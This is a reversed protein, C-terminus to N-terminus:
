IRCATCMIATQGNFAVINSYIVAFGNLLDCHAIRGKKSKPQDTQITKWSSVSHTVSSFSLVFLVCLKHALGIRITIKTHPKQKLFKKMTPSQRQPHTQSLTQTPKHPNTHIKTYKHRERETHPRKIDNREISKRWTLIGEFKLLYVTSLKVTLISASIFCTLRRM